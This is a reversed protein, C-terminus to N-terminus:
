KIREARRLINIVLTHNWNGDVWKGGVKKKRPEFGREALTRAIKLVGMGDVKLKLVLKIIKLEYANPILRAPDKPNIKMGFPPKSSMRRGSRQHRLMADSTVESILGCRLEQAADLLWVVYKAKAKSGFINELLEFDSEKM